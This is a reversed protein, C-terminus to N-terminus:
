FNLNHKRIDVIVGQIYNKASSTILRLNILCTVAQQNIDQLTWEFSAESTRFLLDVIKAIQERSAAGDPQNSTSLEVLTKTTLEQQSLKFLKQAEHNSEIFHLTEADLVVVAVPALELLAKYRGFNNEAYEAKELSTEMQKLIDEEHRNISKEMPRYIFFIIFLSLLIFIVVYFLQYEIQTSISNDMAEDLVKVGRHMILTTSLTSDNILKIFADAPLSHVGSNNSAINRLMKIHKLVKNYNSNNNDFYYAQMPSIIMSNYYPTIGTLLELNRVFLAINKKMRERLENKVKTTTAFYIETAFLATQNLLMREHGARDIATNFQRM